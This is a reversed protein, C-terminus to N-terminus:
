STMLASLFQACNYLIFNDFFNLNFIQEGLNIYQKIMQLLIWSSTQM